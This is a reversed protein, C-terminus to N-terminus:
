ETEFPNEPASDGKSKLLDKTKNYTNRSIDCTTNVEPKLDEPALPMIEYEIVQRHKLSALSVKKQFDLNDTSVSQAKELYKEAKTLTTYGLDYKEKEFLHKAMQLRKDAYLLNLESKKDSSSTLFYQLKDRIAKIYWFPSDPTIKGPYILDYDISIEEESNEPKPTPAVPSFAYKPEVGRFISVTLIIFGLILSSFIVAFHGKM